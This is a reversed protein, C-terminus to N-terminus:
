IKQKVEGFVGGWSNTGKIQFRYHKKPKLIYKFGIKQALLDAHDVNAGRYGNATKILYSFAGITAITIEKGRLTYFPCEEPKDLQTANNAAFKWIRRMHIDNDNPCSKYEM